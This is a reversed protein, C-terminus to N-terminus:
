SPPAARAAASKPIGLLATVHLPLWPVRRREVRFEYADNGLGDVLQWLEHTSYARLCSAFGDWTVLAPLAPLAYTLALRRLSLPRTRPTLLPVLTPLSLVMLAGSASREVVEFSAIPQQKRMADAFISRARAPQFHHLANFLTRLGSLEEPVATADTPTRRGTVQGRREAEARLFAQENPFRDTLVIPVRLGHQRELAASLSLLPGGGGSCLDVIRPAQTEQLLAHLVPAVAEFVGFADSMVRLMDTLADRLFAPCWAYDEIEPAHIRPM